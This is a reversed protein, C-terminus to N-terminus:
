MRRKLLYLDQKALNEAILDELNQQKKKLSGVPDKAALDAEQDAKMNVWIKIQQVGCKRRIRFPSQEM